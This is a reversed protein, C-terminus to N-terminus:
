TRILGKDIFSFYSKKSFVIHDDMYIQLIKSLKKFDRTVRIDENSPLPDGSPHSHCLIYSSCRSLILEKFIERPHIISQDVSGVFIKKTNIPIKLNNLGIIWVEEQEYSIHQQLHQYALLSNEIPSLFFSSKSM